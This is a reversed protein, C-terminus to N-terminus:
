TTEIPVFNILNTVSNKVGKFAQYIPDIATYLSTSAFNGHLVLKALVAGYRFLLEHVEPMM